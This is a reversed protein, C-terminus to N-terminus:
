CSLHPRLRLLCQVVTCQMSSCQRGGTHMSACVSFTHKRRVAKKSHSHVTDRHVINCGAAIGCSDVCQNSAHQQVHGVCGQGLLLISEQTPHMCATSVAPLPKIDLTASRMPGIWMLGASCPNSSVIQNSSVLMTQTGATQLNIGPPLGTRPYRTLGMHRHGMHQMACSVEQCPVMCQVM